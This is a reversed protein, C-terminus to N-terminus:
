IRFLNQANQTTIEAIKEFTEGKLEAIKQAVYKIFLPENRGEKALAVAPPPALYPCDTELLIRDLPTKKIIDDLNLKFIIGNFGLYFGMALYRKADEWTGTFCHIAGTIKPSGIENILDNHASRCHFIVPLNLEEALHMQDSIAKKQRNIFQSLKAKNKPYYYYDLGIEGVAVVKKSEALDKYRKYDFNENDARFAIEEKDLKAEFIGDALHVPHLGIAAYVGKDRWSASEAIEVARKSTSYQSGVNIMKAGGALSRRIVEDADDKFANFNLHAHTDILM